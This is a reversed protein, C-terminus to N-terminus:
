YDWGRHAVRKKRKGTYQQLSSDSPAPFSGLAPIKLCKRLEVAMGRQFVSYRAGPDGSAATKEQRAVQVARYRRDVNKRVASDHYGAPV